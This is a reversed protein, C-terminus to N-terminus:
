QLATRYRSQLELVRQIYNITERYPPVGGHRRVAEEGANYAALALRLNGNYRDILFALHKVGGAINQEPAFPDRVELHSAMFPMLQMLGQAGKPSIAAPNFASEVHIVARVLSSDLNHARSANEILQSYTNLFLRERGRSPSRYVSFGADKATFVKADVGAPPPKSSFRLSGGPEEYVYIPSALAEFPYSFCFGLFLFALFRSYLSPGAYKTLFFSRSMM